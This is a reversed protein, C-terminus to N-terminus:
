AAHSQENGELDRRFAESWAAVALLDSATVPGDLRRALLHLTTVNDLKRHMGVIATLGPAAAISVIRDAEHGGNEALRRRIVDAGAEITLSRVPVSGVPLCPPLGEAGRDRDFWLWVLGDAEVAAYREATITAPPELEPHAPIRRCGGDAGFRWGHYLCTIAEDRVFGFSLRMGRHPCRDTFAQLHGPATRWLVIERGVVVAPHASGAAVDAQLAVPVWGGGM